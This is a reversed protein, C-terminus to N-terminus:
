PLHFMSSGICFQDSLRLIFVLWASNKLANEKNSLFDGEWIYLIKPKDAMYVSNRAFDNDDSELASFYAKPCRNTIRYRRCFPLWWRAFEWAKRVGYLTMPSCGDDSLYVHIKEQPYDLAMSSLVTNM